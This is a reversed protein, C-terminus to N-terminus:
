GTWLEIKEKENEPVPRDVLIDGIQIGGGPKLARAMEMFAEQKDPMLNVAGNSIVVDAWGDPVPLEEGFRLLFEVHEEGLSKAGAQAKEIMSPTGAFSEISGEPLGDLWEAEYALIQALPRGTHFHFGREPECAVTEYEEQIAERLIERDVNPVAPVSPATM